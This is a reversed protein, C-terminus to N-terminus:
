KNQSPEFEQYYSKKLKEISCTENCVGDGCKGNCEKEAYNDVIIYEETGHFYLYTNPKM